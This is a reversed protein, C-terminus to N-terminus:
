TITRTVKLLEMLVDHVEAALRPLRVNDATTIHLRQYATDFKGIAKRLETVYHRETTTNVGASTELRDIVNLIQRIHSVLQDTDIHFITTRSYKTALFSLQRLINGDLVLSRASLRMNGDAVLIEYDDAELRM